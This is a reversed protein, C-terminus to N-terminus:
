IKSFYKSLEDVIPQIEKVKMLHFISSLQAFKMWLKPLLERYKAFIKM